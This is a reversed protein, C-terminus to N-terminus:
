KKNGEKQSSSEAFYIITLIIQGIWSTRASIMDGNVLVIGIGLFFLILAGIGYINNKKM